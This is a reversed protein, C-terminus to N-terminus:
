SSFEQSPMRSVIDDSVLRSRSVISEPGVVSRAVVAGAGVEAGRMIVSDIVVAEPGIRAGSCVISCGAVRAAPDLAAGSEIVPEPVAARLYALYSALTRLTQVPYPLEVSSIRAGAAALSPLLQEKLDVFGLASVSGLLAKDLLMLGGYEAGQGALVAGRRGSQLGGCESLLAACAREPPLASGDCILVSDWAAADEDSNMM